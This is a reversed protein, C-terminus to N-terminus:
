NLAVGTVFKEDVSQITLDVKQCTIAELCRHRLNGEYVAVPTFM